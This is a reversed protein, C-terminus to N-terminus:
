PMAGGPGFFCAALAKGAGEIPWPRLQMGPALHQSAITGARM